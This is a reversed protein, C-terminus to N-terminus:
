SVRTRDTSGRSAITNGITSKRSGIAFLPPANPIKKRGTGFLRVGAAASTGTLFVVLFIVSSWNASSRM